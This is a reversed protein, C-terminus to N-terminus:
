TKMYSIFTCYELIHNSHIVMEHLIVEIIESNLLKCIILNSLLADYINFMQGELFTIFEIFTFDRWFM